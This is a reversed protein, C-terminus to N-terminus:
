TFVGCGGAAFDHGTVTRVIARAIKSGGTASPEIPSMPSYDAADPCVLRLDIVPVRARAAEGLIVENFVALGARAASNLLPVADYVTCVTTPLRAATVRSLMHRYALQFADRIAGLRGLVEAFTAPTDSLLLHRHGLADNGGICVVLHTAGAPLRDLQAPIDAIVSGDVARLTATWGTPLAGRLHDIVAPGGVVYSANDFISDGLLVVHGM